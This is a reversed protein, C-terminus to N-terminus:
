AKFYVIKKISALSLSYEKSLEDITSGGYYAARIEDNRTSTINKSQTIDGWKKYNSKLKPIYLSKGQIYRQIESLLEKPLITDAGLRDM